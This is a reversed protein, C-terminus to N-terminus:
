AAPLMPTESQKTGFITDMIEPRPLPFAGHYCSEEWTGAPYHPVNLAAAARRGGDGSLVIPPRGRTVMMVHRFGRLKGSRPGELIALVKHSMANGGPFYFYRLPYDGVCGVGHRDSPVEAFKTM